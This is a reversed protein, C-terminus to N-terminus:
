KNKLWEETAENVQDNTFFRGDKVQQRAEAIPNKQDENLKYLDTNNDSDLFNYKEELLNKNDLLNIEEISKEKIATKRKIYKSLPIIM